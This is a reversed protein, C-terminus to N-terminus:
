SKHFPDIQMFEGESAFGYVQLCWLNGNIPKQITKLSKGHIGDNYFSV